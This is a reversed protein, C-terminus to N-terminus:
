YTSGYEEFLAHSREIFDDMTLTEFSSINPFMLHEENGSYQDLDDLNLVDHALEHYMLYYQMPKSLKNWTSPNIYIEILSDDDYGYSIAHIHTTDDLRDLKAFKIITQSPKKPFIGFFELDRYFKDVYFQFDTEPDDYSSAVISDYLEYNEELEYYSSGLTITIVAIIFALLLYYQNKNGATRKQPFFNLDHIESISVWDNLGQYWVQTHGPLRKRRMDDLSFPGFRNQGDTYFYNRM